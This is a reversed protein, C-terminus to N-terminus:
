IGLSSPLESQREKQCVASIHHNDQLLCRRCLALVFYDQKYYFVLADTLELQSGGGGGGGSMTHCKCM